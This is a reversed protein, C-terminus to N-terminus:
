NIDIISDSKEEWHKLYADCAHHLVRLQKRCTYKKM